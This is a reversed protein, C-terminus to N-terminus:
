AVLVVPCRASALVRELMGRRGAVSALSVVLLGPAVGAFLDDLHIRAVVEPRGGAFRVATAWARAASEAEAPQGGAAEPPADALVAVAMRGWRAPPTGKVQRVGGRPPALLVPAATAATLAELLLDGRTVAFSWPLGLAAATEAVLARLEDASRALLRRTAELDAPHVAGSVLGVEVSFPLAVCRLLDSEEVFLAALEADLAQALAAAEDLLRRADLTARPALVVRLTPGSM